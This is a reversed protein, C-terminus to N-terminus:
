KICIGLLCFYQVLVEKMGVESKREEISATFKTKDDCWAFSKKGENNEIDHQLYFHWYMRAQFPRGM